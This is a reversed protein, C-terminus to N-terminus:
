NLNEKFLNILKEEDIPDGIFEEAEEKTIPVIKEMCSHNGYGYGSGEPESPDYGHRYDDLRPGVYKWTKDDKRFIAAMLFGYDAYLVQYEDGVLFYKM